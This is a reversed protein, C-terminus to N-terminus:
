GTFNFAQGSIGTAYSIGNPATGSNGDASDNTNGEGKWDSVLGNTTPPPAPLPPPIPKGFTSGAGRVLAGANTFPGCPILDRGNQLPLSGHPAIATLDALANTTGSSRVYINSNGGDLLINANDTTIASPLRLTSGASVQWTGGTLTGASLNTPTSASANL